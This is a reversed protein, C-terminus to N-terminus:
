DPSMKYTGKLHQVQEYLGSQNAATCINVSQVGGLCKMKVKRGFLEIWQVCRGRRLVAM